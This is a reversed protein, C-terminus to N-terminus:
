KITLLLLAIGLPVGQKRLQRAVHQVDGGTERLRRQVRQRWVMGLYEYLVSRPVVHRAPLFHM